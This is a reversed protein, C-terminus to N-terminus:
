APVEGSELLNVLQEALDAGIQRRSTLGPYGMQAALELLVERRYPDIDEKALGEPIEIRDIAVKMLRRNLRSSPPLGGVTEVAENTEITAAAEPPAHYALRDGTATEPAEAAEEGTTLEILRGIIADAEDSTMATMDIGQETVFSRMTAKEDDTLGASLENIRARQDVSSGEVADYTEWASTTHLEDAAPVGTVDFARRMAMVEACKVAMEPGYETPVVKGAKASYKQKPYRGRFTFPRSMDKRYVSVKAWWEDGESGEAEVVLGDLVGSRHAIHLYGDRTIYPRGEILVMHKLLPDLGYRECVLLLAQTAPDRPNLKLTRLIAERDIQVPAAPQNLTVLDNM